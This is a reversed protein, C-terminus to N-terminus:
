VFAANPTRTPTTCAARFEEGGGREGYVSDNVLHKMSKFFSPLTDYCVAVEKKSSLMEM